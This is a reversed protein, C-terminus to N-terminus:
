ADNVNMRSSGTMYELNDPQLSGGVSLKAVHLPRDAWELDSHSGGDM